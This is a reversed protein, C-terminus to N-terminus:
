ENDGATDKWKKVTEKREDESDFWYLTIDLATNGPARLRVPMENIKYDKPDKGSNRITAGLAQDCICADRGEKPTLLKTEDDWLKRVEKASDKGGVKVLVAIALTRLNLPSADKDKILKRVIKLGDKFDSAYVFCLFYQLIQVDAVSQADAWSVLLTSLAKGIEKDKIAEKLGPDGLLHSFNAPDKWMGSDKKLSVSALLLSALDGPKIKAVETLGDGPVFLSRCRAEYAQRGHDKAQSVSQLFPGNTRLAEAFLKRACLDTGAVKEYEKALPLDHPRKDERDALYGEAKRAWEADEIQTVLLECRRKVEPDDSQLGVRIAALAANGLKALEKQAVERSTFDSSGLDKVLAEPKKTADSCRGDSPIALALILGTLCRFLVPFRM